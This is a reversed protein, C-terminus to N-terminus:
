GPTVPWFWVVLGIEASGFRSGPVAQGAFRWLMEALRAVVCVMSMATGLGAQGPPLMRRIATPRGERCRPRSRDSREKGAAALRM